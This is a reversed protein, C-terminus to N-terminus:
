RIVLISGKNNSKSLAEQQNIDIAEIEWTYVGNPVYYEQTVGGTWVDDPDKSEWVLQGYRNFIRLVYSTLGNAYVRFVDNVGDGDPTIATPAYVYICDVEMIVSDRKECGNLSSILELTSTRLPSAFFITDGLGILDGNMEWYSEDGNSRGYLRTVDECDSYFDDGALVQPYPSIFVTATDTTDCSVLHGTVVYRGSNTVTLTDAVTGGSWSYSVFNGSPVIEVVEGVCATDKSVETTISMSVRLDVTITDSYLPCQGTASMAATYYYEGDDIANVILGTQGAMPLGDHFWQIVAGDSIGLIPHETLCTALVNYESYPPKAWTATSAVDHSIITTPLSTASCGNLIVELTVTTAQQYGVNFNPTTASASSNNNEYWNYQYNTQTVDSDLQFVDDPCVDIPGNPSIVAVPKPKVLVDFEVPISECGNEEVTLEFTLSSPSSTNVTYNVGTGVNLNNFRWNYAAFGPTANLVLSEDECVEQSLPAGPPTTTIVPVPLPIVTVSVPLSEVICAGNTAIAIYIGSETVSLANSIESLTTGNKRWEISQAPQTTLTLPDNQCITYPGAGTITPGSATITPTISEQVQVSLTTNDSIGCSNEVTLTITQNGFNNFIIGTPNVATSTAPTANTFSWSTVTGISGASSFNMAIGECATTVSPTAVANPVQDSNTAGFSSNGSTIYNGNCNLENSVGETINISQFEPGPGLNLTIGSLASCTGVAVSSVSVPFSGGGWYVGSYANTTPNLVYVQEAADTLSGLQGASSFTCNCTNWNLDPTNSGQGSSITYVENPQLITGNPITLSFDGDGIVMCSIDAAVSCTNMLEIWENTNPPVGDLGSPNVMIENIVICQADLKTIPFAAILVISLVIRLIRKVPPSQTEVKEPQSNRLVYANKPL